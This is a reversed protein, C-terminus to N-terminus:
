EGNEATGIGLRSAAAEAIARIVDQPLTGHVSVSVPVVSTPVAYVYHRARFEPPKMILRRRAGTRARWGRRFRLAYTDRYRIMM